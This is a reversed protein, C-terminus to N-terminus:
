DLIGLSTGQGYHGVLSVGTLFFGFPVLEKPPMKLGFTFNTMNVAVICMHRVFLDFIFSHFKPDTELGKVHERYKKLVSTDYSDDHDRTTYHIKMSSADINRIELFEEHMFDYFEGLETYTDKLYLIVNVPFFARYRISSMKFGVFGDHTIAEKLKANFTGTDPVMLKVLEKVPHGKTADIFKLAWTVYLRAIKEPVDPDCLYRKVSPFKKLKSLHLDRFRRSGKKVYVFYNSIQVNNFTDCPLIMDRNQVERFWHRIPGFCVCDNLDCYFGGFRDLILARLYDTKAVLVREHIRDEVLKVFGADEDKVIELTDAIYKVTVKDRPFEPGFVEEIDEEGNFDTWLVFNLEPNHEIWTLMPEVSVRKTSGPKRFWVWNLTQGVLSEDQADMDSWTRHVGKKLVLNVYCNVAIYQERRDDTELSDWERMPIVLLIGNKAGYENPYEVKYLVHKTDDLYREDKSVDYESGDRLNKFLTPNTPYSFPSPVKRAFVSRDLNYYEHIESWDVSYVRSFDYRERNLYIVASEPPDEVLRQKLTSM